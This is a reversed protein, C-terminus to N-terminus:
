LEQALRGTGKVVNMLEALARIAKPHDYDEQADGLNAIAVDFRENLVAVEGNIHRDTHDMFMGDIPQM